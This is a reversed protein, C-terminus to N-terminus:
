GRDNGKEREALMAEAMLYAAGAIEREVGIVRGVRAVLAQMAMAALQDRTPRALADAIGILVQREFESLELVSM